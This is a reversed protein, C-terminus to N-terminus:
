YTKAMLDKGDLSVTVLKNKLHYFGKLEIDGHNLKLKVPNASIFGESLEFQGSLQDIPFKNISLQEADILIFNENNKPTSVAIRIKNVKHRQKPVGMLIGNKGELFGNIVLDKLTLPGKFGIDGDFTGTVPFFDGKGMPQVDNFSIKKIKIKADIVHTKIQPNKPFFNGNFYILGGLTEGKIDFNVQNKKWVGKIAISPVSLAQNEVQKLGRVPAYLTIEKGQLNGEMTLTLSNKQDVVGKAELQGSLTGTTPMWNRLKRYISPQVQLNNLDIHSNLIEIGLQKQQSTSVMFIKSSSVVQGHLPNMFFNIDLVGKKLTANSEFKPITLQADGAKLNIERLEISFSLHSSKLLNKPNELEDLPVHGEISLHKIQTELFSKRLSKQTSPPLLAKIWEFAINGATINDLNIELAPKKSLIDKLVIAGRFPIITFNNSLSSSTQNEFSDSSEKYITLLEPPLTEFTNNPELLNKLANSASLEIAISNLSINLQDASPNEMLVRFSLKLGPQFFKDNISIVSGANNIILEQFNFSTSDLFKKIRKQWNNMLTQKQSKNISVPIFCCNPQEVLAHDVTKQRYIYAKPEDVIIESIKLKKTFLPLFQPKISLKRITSLPRNDKLSLIKINRGQIKLGGVVSLDIKEIEVKVKSKKNIEYLINQRVLPDFFVILCIFTLLLLSVISIIFILLYNKSSSSRNAFTTM